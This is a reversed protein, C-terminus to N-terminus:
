IGHGSVKYLVECMSYRVLLLIISLFCRVLTDDDDSGDDEFLDDSYQDALPESIVDVRRGDVTRCSYM